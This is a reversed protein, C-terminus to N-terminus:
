IHILSLLIDATASIVESEMKKLSKFAGPNLGNECAYAHYADKLFGSHNEDLYYVLSWVRGEKYRPDSSKFAELRQLIDDSAAGTDPMPKHM